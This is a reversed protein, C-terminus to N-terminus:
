ESTAGLYKQIAEWSHGGNALGHLDADAMKVVVDGTDNNYTAKECLILLGSNLHVLWEPKAELTEKVAEMTASVYPDRPNIKLWENLEKQLHRVNVVSYYKKGVEVQNPHIAHRFSEAKFKIEM